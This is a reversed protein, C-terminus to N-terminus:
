WISHIRLNLPPGCLHTGISVTPLNIWDPFEVEYISNWAHLHCNQHCILNCLLLDGHM